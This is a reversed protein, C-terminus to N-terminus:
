AHLAAPVFSSPDIGTLVRMARDAARRTLYTTQQLTDGGEVLSVTRGRLAVVEHNLDEVVLISGDDSRWVPLTERGPLSYSGSQGPPTPLPAVDPALLQEVSPPPAAAGAPLPLALLLSALLIPRRM